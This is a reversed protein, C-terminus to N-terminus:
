NLNLRQLNSFRLESQLIKSKNIKQLHFPKPEKREPNKQILDSETTPKKEERNQRRGKFNWAFFLIFCFFTFCFTLANWDDLVFFFVEKGRQSRKDEREWETFRDIKVFFNVFKSQVFKLESERNIKLVSFVRNERFILIKCDTFLGFSTTRTQLSQGFWFDFIAASTRVRRRTLFFLFFKSRRFTLVLREFSLFLFIIQIRMVGDLWLIAHNYFSKLFM